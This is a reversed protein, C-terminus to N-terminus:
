ADFDGRCEHSACRDGKRLCKAVEFALHSYQLIFFGYFPLSRDIIIVISNQCRIDSLRM